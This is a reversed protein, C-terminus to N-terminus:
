GFIKDFLERMQPFTMENRFDKGKIYETVNKNQIYLNM